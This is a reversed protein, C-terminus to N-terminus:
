SLRIPSLIARHTLARHPDDVDANPQPEHGTYQGAAGAVRGRVIGSVCVSTGRHAGWGVSGIGARNIRLGFLLPGVRYADLVVHETKWEGYELALATQPQVGDRQLLGPLIGGRRRDVLDAMHFGKGRSVVDHGICGVVVGNVTACQELHTVLRDDQGNRVNGVAVPRDLYGVAVGVVQEVDAGARGAALAAIVGEDSRVPLARQRRAHDLVADGGVADHERDADPRHGAIAASRAWTLVRCSLNM